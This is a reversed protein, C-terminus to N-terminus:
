DDAFVPLAVCRCYLSVLIVKARRTPGFYVNGNLAIHEDRVKEDGATSWETDTLARRKVALERSPALYSAPRTM